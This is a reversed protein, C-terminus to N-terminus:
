HIMTEYSAWHLTLQIPPDDLHYLVVEQRNRDPVESRAHSPSSSTDHDCDDSHPLDPSSSPLNNIQDVQDVTSGSALADVNAAQQEDHPSHKCALSPIRPFQLSVGETDSVGQAYADLVTHTTCQNQRCISAAQSSLPDCNGVDHSLDSEKAQRDNAVHLSDKHDPLVSFSLEQIGQGSCVASVVLEDFTVSKAIRISCASKKLIGPRCFQFDYQKDCLCPFDDQASKQLVEGRLVDANHLAQFPEVFDHEWQFFHLMSHISRVIFPSVNNGTGATCCSDFSGDADVGYVWSWELFAPARVFHRPCLIGDGLNVFSTIIFYWWRARTRPLSSAKSPATDMELFAEEDEKEEVILAAKACRQLVDQVQPMMTVADSEKVGEQTLDVLPAEPLPVAQAESGGARLNLQHIEQRAAQLESQVQAIMDKFSQQQDMYSKM